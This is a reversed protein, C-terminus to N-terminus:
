TATQKTQQSGKRMRRAMLPWIMKVLVRKILSAERTYAASGFENIGLEERLDTTMAVVMDDLPIGTGDAIRTMRQFNGIVAAADVLAAEGLADAVASRRTPEGAAAEPLPEAEFGLAQHFSDIALTSVVVSLIEVYAADSLGADICDRLWSETLRSADTTLRHAVDVQVPSLSGHDGDHEGDASFPSLNSKRECCLSCVRANRVERAVAVREEATLWTGAHGLKDWTHRFAGILDDRIPWPSNSYNFAQM